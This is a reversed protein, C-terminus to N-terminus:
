KNRLKLYEEWDKSFREIGRDTLPHMFLKELVSFPITAVDCGMKAVEVVHYPHRVSAAIVETEFGYNYFIQLIEEVLELGQNGIDDVRGIFPSVYTAGAKAALLAQLPSFILTVNTKIGESSLTKVAKIGDKTMPIKIVVHESIKALERAEKVMNEYDMSVVEASVPGQVVDCIEKVRTEFDINGEKAVLTPNTTVGDIIGWDKAIKIQEINATDLFIKM